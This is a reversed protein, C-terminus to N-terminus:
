SSKPVLISILTGSPTDRRRAEVPIGSRRIVDVAKEISDTFRRTDKQIMRRRLDPRGPDAPSPDQGPAADSELRRRAAARADACLLSEVYEEAAAVNMERRIMAALVPARDEPTPFRLLARGHRETLRNELMLRREEETLRLLRLKNAVYSQSVGLTSACQEQTLAATDILAAIAAASEFLNLDGARLNEAIAAATAPMDPDAATDAPHVPPLGSVDPSLPPFSSQDDPLAPFDAPSVSVCPCTKLGALRAATLRREGAVLTWTHGEADPSPLRRVLLPIRIGRRLVADVAARLREAEPSPDPTPIPAPAAVSAIPLTLIADASAPVTETFM